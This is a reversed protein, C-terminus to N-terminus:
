ALADTLEKLKTFRKRAALAYIYSIIFGKKGDLIGLKILYHEFFKAVPKIYLHYLNPKKGKKLDEEAKLHGYRIRKQKYIEYDYYTNHVLKNKLVGSAGNVILTEHVIRDLDYQVSDKKFLRYNKDRQWGCYRLVKKNFMFKRYFYYAVTTNNESNITALIEQQLTDPIREDADIFLM